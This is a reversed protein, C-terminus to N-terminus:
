LVRAGPVAELYAAGIAHMLHTKGQGTGSHLFLPSFRPVGPEALARAANYAVMTSGDVVFRDFTFRPDLPPRDAVM